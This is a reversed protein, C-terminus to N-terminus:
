ATRLNGCSFLRRCVHRDEQQNIQNIKTRQGLPILPPIRSEVSNLPSLRTINSAYKWTKLSMIKRDGGNWARSARENRCDRHLIAGSLQALCDSTELPQQAVADIISEGFGIAGLDSSRSCHKLLDPM